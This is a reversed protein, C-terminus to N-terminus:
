KYKNSENFSYNYYFRRKRKPFEGSKKLFSNGKSHRGTKYEKFGIKKNFKESLLNFKEKLIEYDKDSKRIKKLLISSDLNNFYEEKDLKNKLIVIQLRREEDKLKKIDEELNKKKLKLEDNEKKNKNFLWNKVNSDINAQQSNFIIEDEKNDKSKNSFSIDSSEQKSKDEDEKENLRLDYVTHNRKEQLSQYGSINKDSNLSANVSYIDNRKLDFNDKKNGEKGNLNKLSNTKHIEKKEYKSKKFNSSTLMFALLESYRNEYVTKLLYYIKTQTNKLWKYNDFRGEKVIFKLGDIFEFNKEYDKTCKKDFNKEIKEKFLKKLEIRKEKDFSILKDYNDKVSEGDLREKFIVNLLNGWLTNFEDALCSKKKKDFVSMDEYTEFSEPNLLRELIKNRSPILKAPFDVYITKEFVVMGEKTLKEFLQFIDGANDLYAWARLCEVLLIYLRYDWKDRKQDLVDRFTIRSDKIIICDKKKHLTKKLTKLLNKKLSLIIKGHYVREIIDKVLQKIQLFLM